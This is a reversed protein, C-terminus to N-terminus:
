IERCKEAMWLREDANLLPTLKEYVLKHYNNLWDVEERTLLAFDILTTDIPFLTLTEFKLFDGFDTKQDEVCLVLNEIRIGYAGTQYFGPENSTLMGPEFARAAKGSIGPSISQPGEHVNLFFGVGHGTGHGYNLGYKWLSRRALVDIQHGRTGKPFRLLAVDIHGKLVLTYNRKQEETPPSLAITRTIDTTGNLYQGGSDLLLIGEPKITACTEEKARYHVIAGNGEYGVIASFSEGHYDEQESRLKALKQAVETEKVSRSSLTDDLWRYLKTLAVGDKLMANRIHQVEVDNKVAKLAVSITEGQIIKANEIIRFLYANISNQDLLICDETSLAALERVISDYDHLRIGEVDFRQKLEQSIKQTDIFLHAKTEGILAYAIAVPNCEVDNGRINFIWAIDDLTSVLHYNAGQKSMKQRIAELKEKRSQGTYKVGLELVPSTPLAPRDEWVKEILAPCFVLNLGSKKLQKTYAMVQKQSFLTPDIGVNAGAELNSSLWSIVQPQHAVTQRHLAVETDKLEEEAQLFYRSDTSVGAESETAFFVGASGSFGSIWQRFQWHTAVYESQHPDSSPVIFAQVNQEQM